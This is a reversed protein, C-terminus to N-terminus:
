RHMKSLYYYYRNQIYIAGDTLQFQHYAQQGKFYSRMSDDNLTMDDIQKLKKTKSSLKYRKVVMQDTFILLENENMAKIQLIKENVVGSQFELVPQLQVQRANTGAMGAIVSPRGAPPKNSVGFVGQSSSYGFMNVIQTGNVDTSLVYFVTQQRSRKGGSIEPDLKSYKSSFFDFPVDCNTPVPSM